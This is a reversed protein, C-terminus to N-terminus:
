CCTITNKIVFPIGSGYLRLLSIHCKEPRSYAVLLLKIAEDGDNVQSKSAIQIQNAFIIFHSTPCSSPIGTCYNKSM